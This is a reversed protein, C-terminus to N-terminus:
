SVSALTIPSTTLVNVGMKVPPLNPARVTPFKRKAFNGRFDGRANVNTLDSKIWVPPMIKVDTESVIMQTSKAVYAKSVTHASVDSICVFYMYGIVSLNGKKNSIKRISSFLIFCKYLESLLIPFM